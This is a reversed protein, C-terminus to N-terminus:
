ILSPRNLDWFDPQRDELLDEFTGWGKAKIFAVEKDTIPILWVIVTPPVTDELTGLGEGFVVPMTAYVGTVAVGPILPANPGVVDGRLLAQNKSLVFDCFTLLFSAIEESSFQDHAAFILEQRVQRGSPLPLVVHSMGLTAYTVTGESPQRNFRVVQFRESGQTLNWGAETTGLYTEFHQFIDM